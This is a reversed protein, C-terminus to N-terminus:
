LKAMDFGGAKLNDFFASIFLVNKFRKSFARRCDMDEKRGKREDEWGEREDLSLVLPSHEETDEISPQIRPLPQSTGPFTSKPRCNNFIGYKEWRLLSPATLCDASPHGRVEPRREM